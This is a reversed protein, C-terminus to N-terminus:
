PLHPEKMSGKKIIHKLNEIKIDIEALQFRLDKNKLKDREFKIKSELNKRISYFEILKDNRPNKKIIIKKM